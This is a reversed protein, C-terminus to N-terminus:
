LFMKRLTSKRRWLLHPERFDGGFLQEATNVGFFVEAVEDIAGRVLLFLPSCTEGPAVADHSATAVFGTLSVDSSAAAAAAIM